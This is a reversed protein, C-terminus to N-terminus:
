NGVESRISCPTPAPWNAVLSPLDMYGGSSAFAVARAEVRLRIADAQEDIAEVAGLAEVIGTFM